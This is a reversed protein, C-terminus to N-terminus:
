DAKVRIVIKGTAHGNRNLVLAEKIQDLPFIRDVVSKVAGAKILSGIEALQGGDPHMMVAELRIDSKDVSIGLTSALVGGPKLVKLSRPQVEGALTDLVADFDHIVDEFHEKGYDIVRDAGLARAQEVHAAGVTTAVEAGVHKAFQVAFSGVGGLGAHILIKQGKKLRIYEFLSQWATLAALPVAAANVFDLNEPKRAIEKINAVAYESFTGPTSVRAYVPDGAKFGAVEGATGAVVGAVDYGLLSPFKLPRFAKLYGEIIKWDVPNIGAAYVEILVEGPGAVPKPVDGLKVTDEVKGYQEIYAAKM